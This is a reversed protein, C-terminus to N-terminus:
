NLSHEIAAMHQEAEMKERKKELVSYKTAQQLKESITSLLESNM